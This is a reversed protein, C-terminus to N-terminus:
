GTQDRVVDLAFRAAARQDDSWGPEDRMRKLHELVALAEDDTLNAWAGRVRPAENSLLESWLRELSSETPDMHTM